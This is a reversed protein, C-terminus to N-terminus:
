SSFKFNSTLGGCVLGDAVEVDENTKGCICLLVCSIGFDGLGWVCLFFNCGSSSKLGLSESSEEMCSSLVRNFSLDNIVDVSFFRVSKVHELGLCGSWISLKVLGVCTSFVFSM